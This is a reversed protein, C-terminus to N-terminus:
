HCLLPRMGYNYLSDPKMMNVINFRYTKGERTNSVSFYYWQTNAKTNYDYKLLLDYEYM